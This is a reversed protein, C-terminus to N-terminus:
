ATVGTARSAPSPLAPRTAAGAPQPTGDAAPSGAAAQPCLLVHTSPLAHCVGIDWCCPWQCWVKCARHQHQSLFGM